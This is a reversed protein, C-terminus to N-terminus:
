SKPRKDVGRALIVMIDSEFEQFTAPDELFDRHYYIEKERAGGVSRLSLGRLKGRSSKFLLHLDGFQYDYSFGILTFSVLRYEEILFRLHFPIEDLNYKVYSM